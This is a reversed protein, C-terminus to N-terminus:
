LLLIIANFILSTFVFHKIFSVRGDTHENLNGGRGCFTVNVHLYITIQNKILENGHTINHENM